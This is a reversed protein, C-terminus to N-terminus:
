HVFLKYRIIRLMIFHDDQLLEVLEDLVQQAMAELAQVELSVMSLQIALLHHHELLEIIHAVLDMQFM